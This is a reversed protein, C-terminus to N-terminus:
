VLSKHQIYFHQLIHLSPLVYYVSYTSLMAHFNGTSWVDVAFDGYSQPIKLWMEQARYDTTCIALLEQTDRSYATPDSSLDLDRASGFDCIKAQCNGGVDVLINEPKIDRHVVQKRM